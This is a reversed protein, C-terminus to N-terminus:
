FDGLPREFADKYPLTVCRELVDNSQGSGLSLPWAVLAVASGVVLQSIAATRLIVVDFTYGGWREAREEATDARSSAPAVLLALVVLWTATRRISDRRTTAV